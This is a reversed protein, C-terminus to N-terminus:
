PDWARSHLRPWLGNTDKTMDTTATGAPEDIASKLGILVNVTDANPALFRFIVRRDPLVETWNDGITRAPKPQEINSSIM